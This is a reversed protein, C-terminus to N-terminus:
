RKYVPLVIGRIGMMQNFQKDWEGMVVEALTTMIKLGISGGTEQIYLQDGTRYIHNRMVFTTMAKMTLVLMLRKQIGDPPREILNRSWM